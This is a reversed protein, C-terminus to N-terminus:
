GGAEADTEVQSAHEQEREIVREAFPENGIVADALEHHQARDARGEHEPRHGKDRRGGEKRDAVPTM